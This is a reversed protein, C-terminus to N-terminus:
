RVVIKQTKENLKFIYFGKSLGSITEFSSNIAANMVKRGTVDFVQLEGEDIVIIDNGNQYAFISSDSNADNSSYELSVIFRNESDQTSAIFSYEGELLMNVDEGTLRDIVHLYNFEGKTKYSLTYKGMTMAKFNLSFTKTDDSMTAIAYDEGDQNIYLMPVEANRHNIKNLGRGKDFWAYTEDSYQSNAVKFMIYDNNAKSSGDSNINTMEINGNADTQVFIAENPKIATSNDTGLTWKGTTPEMYYFGIRLFDTGNPIATGAGKYIDHSYPNGILNFGALAGDGNKTVPYDFDAVNVEGTMEISLDAANRYIYGRGKELTTFTSSYSTNKYNEWPSGANKAENFRYFDYTGTEINTASSISPNEVASSIAYWYYKDDDKATAAKTEKKVTAQIGTSTKPLILQGGDEITLSGSPGLKIDKAVAPDVSPSCPRITVTHNIYVVDEDSPVGSPTWDALNNWYGDAANHVKDIAQLTIDDLYLNSSTSTYKICIYKTNLPCCYEYYSYSTSKPVADEFTFSSILNDTTSYGIQMDCYQGSMKYYLGMLVSHSSNNTLRPTILYQPQYYNSHVFIFNYTGTNANGTGIKTNTPNEYRMTWKDFDSATEFGYNYPLSEETISSITLEDIYVNYSKNNRDYQIAIYKIDKYPFDCSFRSYKDNKVTFEECKDWVFSDVSNDTTSYAIKLKVESSNSTTKYYFEVRVGNTTTNLEPTILTQPNYTSSYKFEFKKATSNYTNSTTIGTGSTNFNIKTWCDIDTDYNFGCTFPLDEAGCATKFIIRRWCSQHEENTYARIYAYYSTYLDLGTKEYSLEELNNLHVITGTSPDALSTASVVIDYDKQGVSGATWEFTASTSTTTTCEFSAPAELTGIAQITIDDIYWSHYSATSVHKFAIRSNAPITINQVVEKPSLYSSYVYSIPSEFDHYTYSDRDTTVYGLYLTGYNISSSGNQVTFTIQINTSGSPFTPMAVISTFPNSAGGIKLSKSGESCYSATSNITANGTVITMNSPLSSSSEFGEAYPLSTEQGM